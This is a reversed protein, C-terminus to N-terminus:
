YIEVKCNITGTSSSSSTRKFKLSAQGDSNLSGNVPEIEIANAPETEVDFKSRAEQNESTFFSLLNLRSFVLLNIM